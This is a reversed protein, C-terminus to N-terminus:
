YDSPLLITTVSRDWETIIWVKDDGLRYASLLREGRKLAEDNARGDQKDVEGWDGQLHRSLLAGPEIGRQALVQLAAPTAVIQGPSFLESM